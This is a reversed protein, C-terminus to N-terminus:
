QLQNMRRQYELLALKEEELKDQNILAYASLLNMLSVSIPVHYPTDSDREALCIGEESCWELFQAIEETRLEEKARKMKEHEPVPPPQTKECDDVWTQGMQRYRQWSEITM